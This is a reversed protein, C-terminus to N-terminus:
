YAASCVTEAPNCLMCQGNRKKFMTPAVQDCPRGDLSKWHLLGGAVQVECGQREWCKVCEPTFCAAPNGGPCENRMPVGCRPQGSMTGMGIAKAYYCASLFPPAAIAGPYTWPTCDITEGDSREECRLFWWWAAPNPLPDTCGTEIPPPPQEGPQVWTGEYHPNRWCGNGLIVDFLQHQPPATRAMIYDEGYLRVCEGARKLEQVLLLGSALAPQGCRDGITNQAKEIKGTEVHGEVNTSIWGPAPGPDPSVPQWGEDPPIDCTVVPPPPEIPVCGATPDSCATGSPCTAPCTPPPTTPKYCAPGDPTEACATKEPETPPPCTMEACNKPPTPPPTPRVCKWVGEVKECKGDRCTALCALYGATDPDVPPLNGSCDLTIAALTLLLLISYFRKM